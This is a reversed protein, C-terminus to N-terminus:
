GTQVKTKTVVKQVISGAPDPDGQVVAITLFYHNGRVLLGLEQVVKKRVELNEAPIAEFIIQLPRLHQSM